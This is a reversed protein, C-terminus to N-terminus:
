LIPCPRFEFSELEEGELIENYARGHLQGEFVTEVNTLMSETYSEVFQDEVVGSLYYGSPLGVILFIGLTILFYRNIFAGLIKSIAGREKELVRSRM